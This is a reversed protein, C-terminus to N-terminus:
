CRASTRCSSWCSPRWAGGAAPSANEAVDDIIKRAEAKDDRGPTIRILKRAFLDGTALLLFLLLIVEIAGSFFATTTGFATALWPPM